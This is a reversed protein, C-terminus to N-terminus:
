TAEQAEFPLKRLATARSSNREEKPNNLKGGVEFDKDTLNKTCVPQVCIFSDKSGPIPISQLYDGPHDFSVYQWSKQMDEQIKKLHVGM